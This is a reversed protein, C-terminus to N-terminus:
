KVSFMERERKSQRYGWLTRPKPRNFRRVDIGSDRRQNNNSASESKLEKYYCFLIVLYLTYLCVTFIFPVTENEYTYLFSAEPITEVLM